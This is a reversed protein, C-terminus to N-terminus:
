RLFPPKWTVYLSWFASDRLSRAGHWDMVWSADMPSAYKGVSAMFILWEHLYIYWEWLHTMPWTGEDTWTKWDQGLKWMGCLNPAFHGFVRSDCGTLIPLKRPRQTTKQRPFMDLMYKDCTLYIGFIVFTKIVHSVTFDIFCRIYDGTMYNPFM